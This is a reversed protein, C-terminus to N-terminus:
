AKSKASGRNKHESLPEEINRVVESTDVNVVTEKYYNNKRDIIREKQMLEGETNFECGRLAEYAHRSRLKGGFRSVGKAAVRGIFATASVGTVQATASVGTVQDSISSSKKLVAMIFTDM